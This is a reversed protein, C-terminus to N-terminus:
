KRTPTFPSRPSKKPSFRPSRMPMESDSLETCLTLFDVAKDADYAIPHTSPIHLSLSNASSDRRAQQAAELMDAQESAHNSHSQTLAPYTEDHDFHHSLEIDQGEAEAFSDTFPLHFKVRPSGHALNEYERLARSQESLVDSDEALDQRRSVYPLPLNPSLARARSQLRSVRGTTVSSTFPRYTNEFHGHSTDADFNVDFTPVAIPTKVLRYPSPATEVKKQILSDARQQQVKRRRSQSEQNYLEAKIMQDTRQVISCLVKSQEKGHSRLAALTEKEM